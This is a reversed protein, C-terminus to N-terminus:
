TQLATAAGTRIGTDRSHLTCACGLHRDGVSWYLGQPLRPICPTLIHSAPNLTHATPHPIYSTPHLIYPAPQLTCPALQPTHAIPQQSHATPLLCSPLLAPPLLAPPCSTILLAAPPLRCSPCVPLLALLVARNGSKTPSYGLAQRDPSYYINFPSYHTTLLLYHTTLLLHRTTLLSYHATLPSYYISFLLYYTTPLSSCTALPM